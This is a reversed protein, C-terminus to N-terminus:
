QAPTRWSTRIEKASRYLLLFLSAWVYSPNPHISGAWLVTMCILTFLTISMGDIDAVKKVGIKMTKEKEDIEPYRPVRSGDLNVVTAKDMVIGLLDWVLYVFFVVALLETTHAVLEEATPPKTGDAPTLVAIRFYLILMIQDCIFRALPLNFFKVQYHSRNRSRRYGVWSGLVLLFGVVLHARIHDALIPWNQLRIFIEKIVFGFLIDTYRLNTDFKEVEPPPYLIQRLRTNM